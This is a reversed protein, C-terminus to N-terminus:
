VDVHRCLWHIPMKKAIVVDPQRASIIQDTQIEFDWLRRHTENELFIKSQVYVM